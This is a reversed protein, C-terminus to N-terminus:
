LLDFTVSPAIAMKPVNVGEYTTICRLVWVFLAQTLKEASDRFTWAILYVGFVRTQVTSDWLTFIASKVWPKGYMVVDCCRLMFFEGVGLETEKGLCVM